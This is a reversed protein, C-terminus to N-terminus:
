GRVGSERTYGSIIRALAKDSITLQDKKLGNRLIQKELLHEKAIHAKENETYSTVEILEMRDLLPRPIDQVSNATAIFLVESLDIPLEVYHDRFKNNQESDLVELLASATDGKYDSSMKDIEDLLMLPNRVGASRLGNVIRGPMAGVYTKRHGRIEAEDRVGGLCIRVYKKDLAKAVSRAISTKGTGPPGVLCIIPSEGKSTLNRVALFELIREKVKELGYHDENLIREANKLDKNDKSEKNWPLELLTEIYGRSVASESSNSSISKFREIEKRIKDKVEKDAKLKKLAELYSDADSETHDEGLEERILKMQERLIYDRQNKDVREKVKAQFDNKIAIVDIEKLLIGLLVEYRETLSVAELIRQKQEYYIPLNNAMQDMLVDLEKTESMQRQMEKGIRPNVTAYKQFTESLSRVMAEKVEPALEEETDDELRLVEALLYETTEVFSELKAREKGEVLIRVINNQMKIVQKVEAIIGVQYLDDIGPEEQEVDKQAALFIKQEEMMAKEVAKISKDRSIDFHAIMGPLIVMGRLAVAPMRVIVTDM